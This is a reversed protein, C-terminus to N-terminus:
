RRAIQYDAVSDTLVLSIGSDSFSYLSRFQEMMQTLDRPPTQPEFLGDEEWRDPNLSMAWANLWLPEPFQALKEPM